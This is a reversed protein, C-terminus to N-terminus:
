GIGFQDRLLGEDLRVTTGGDDLALVAYGDINLTRGVATITANLESAAIGAAAAVTDRHARGNRLALCGLVEGVVADTVETKVLAKWGTYARSTLFADIWEPRTGTLADPGTSLVPEHRVDAQDFLAGQGTGDLEPAAKRKPKALAGPSADSAPTAVAPEVPDHWWSPVSPTAPGWGDIGKREMASQFVLVPVTLEALSAGGHYGARVPGYRLDERWLLVADGSSTVVRPGRVEVEGSRVSGSGVSRWRSDADVADLPTSDREVVHGHDSTLVVVRGANAAADLLARLPTLRELTWDQDSVDNKHVTDDIANIVAGVVPVHASSIADVVDNPLAAGAQGRLGRKLFLRANRFARSLGRREDEADGSCVRGSFLSTRSVDTTSPLAAVAGLRGHASAPTWETLGIRSIDGALRTAITASMGDLVVILVRSRARWPKVVSELVGEVGLALSGLEASSPVTSAVESLRVVAAEDRARRRERVRNILRGYAAALEPDHSRVLGMASDAWAGDSMQKQIDAALSGTTREETALWRALRVAHLAAYRESTDHHEIVDHLAEEIGTGSDLAASLAHLRRRLGARMFISRSAGEAWGVDDLLAEAQQIAVRAANDLGAVDRRVIAARAVDAAARAVVPTLSTRDVYREMRVRAAVQDEVPATGHEDWLVDFALGVALPTVHEQQQAVQLAFVAAEGVDARAWAILHKRLAADTGAWAARTTPEGLDATLTVPDPEYTAGLGLVQGLLAGIAHRATVATERSRPWGGPPQHDLLATAAWDLRRLENSVERAGPFLRPVAAWEDPLHLRQQLARSLVADSLDRESRDTLVVAKEGDKLGAIADLIGLQSVGPIVRVTTGNTDIDPHPWEPRARLLLVQEDAELLDAAKQRVMAPSVMIARLPSM